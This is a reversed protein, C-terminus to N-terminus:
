REIHLSVQIEVDSIEGNPGQVGLGSLLLLSHLWQYVDAMLIGKM